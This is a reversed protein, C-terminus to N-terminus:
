GKAHRCAEQAEQLTFRGRYLAMGVV